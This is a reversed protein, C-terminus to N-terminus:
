SSLAVLLKLAKVKPEGMVRGKLSMLRTETVARGMMSSFGGGEEQVLLWVRLSVMTESTASMIAWRLYRRLSQPARM